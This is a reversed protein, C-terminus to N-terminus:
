MLRKQNTPIIKIHQSYPQAKLKENRMKIDKYKDKIGKETPRIFSSFEVSLKRELM